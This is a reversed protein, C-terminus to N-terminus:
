QADRTSEYDNVLSKGKDSKLKEEFLAYMFFQMEQFLEKDADSRPVYNEDLVLQTHHIYATSVFGRNWTNFYKNDKL